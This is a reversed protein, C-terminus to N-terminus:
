DTKGSSFGELFPRFSETENLGPPTTARLYRIWRMERQLLVKNWDGGRLPLHIRDLVTFNVSPLRYNHYRAVHRGLPLYLNGIQMSQMHKDVRKRFEQRTKGVYFAGCQCQMLYVVGQTKCNAFHRLSFSEGNPLALTTRRGIVPCQACSGCPYTGWTKCPDKRATGKYESQILANGISGPKRYTIQPKPGILGKLIPDDTLISWYKSIIKNIKFHENSFRVIIRTTDDEKTPKKSFILDRRNTQKVRNFAKKLSSKSYGRNMLRITLKDAEHQFDENNSCNRKLRLFQSYPISRKLPEPHFSNAHLLTNGATEKRYLKSSLGGESNKFITIDLFNVEHTDSTMTFFLNFANNNMLKLCDRLLEPPGDWIIFLDDIYRQWMCIHRTYVSAAEGQLFEREWEGLYLNAYSPACCTGMAVGQVQLYHSGKFLFTNHRLIYDLMTLIFANFKWDTTARQQLVREIAAIGLHHPISNYLSEVDVTALLASSPISIGDLIQLLHITDRTYSPLEMVHPRLYQDIIQSIGETISGNGSIIPRGPPDNLKKHVKPLAYFTPQRPHRTRIFDWTDKDIVGENVSEDVLSFFEQNFKDVTSPSIKKYCKTDNLINFCMKEYKANDM